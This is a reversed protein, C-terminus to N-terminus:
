PASREFKFTEAVGHMRLAGGGRTEGLSSTLAIAFFSELMSIYNKNTTRSPTLPFPSHPAQCPSLTQHSPELQLDIGPYTTSSTTHGDNRLLEHRDLVYSLDANPRKSFSVHSAWSHSIECIIIIGLLWWSASAVPNWSQLSSKPPSQLLFPPHARSNESATQLSETTRTSM